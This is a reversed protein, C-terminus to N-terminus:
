PSPEGGAAPSLPESPSSARKKASWSGTPSRGSSLDYNMWTGQVTQGDESVYGSLEMSRGLRADIRRLLLQRNVLTGELSGRFPGDLVYQGSVITGTQWLAFVGKDTSPMLTVDWIGTVSDSDHPLTARLTEMQANLMAIRARFRRIEDRISRAEDRLAGEQRELIRVEDEKSEASARIEADSPRDREGRGEASEEGREQRFLAELDEYARALRDRTELRQRLNGDYRAEERALLRREVEVDAQLGFLAVLADEPRVLPTIQSVAPAGAVLLVLVVAPLGRRCSIRLETSTM